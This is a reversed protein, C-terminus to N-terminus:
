SRGRWPVTNDVGECWQQLARIDYLSVPMNVLHQRWSAMLASECNFCCM